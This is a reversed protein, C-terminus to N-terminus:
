ALMTIKGELEVRLNGSVLEPQQLDQLMGADRRRRRAM